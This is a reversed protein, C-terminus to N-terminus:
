AAWSDKLVGALIAQFAIHEYCAECRNVHRLLHRSPVQFEVGEQWALLDAWSPCRDDM